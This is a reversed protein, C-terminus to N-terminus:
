EKEARLRDLELKERAQRERYEDLSELDYLRPASRHRIRLEDGQLIVRAATGSLFGCARTLHEPILLAVNKGVRVLNVDATRLSPRNVLDDGKSLSGKPLRGAL